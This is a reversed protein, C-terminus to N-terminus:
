IVPKRQVGRYLRIAAPFAFESEVMSREQLGIVQEQQIASVRSEPKKGPQERLFYMEASADGVTRPVDYPSEM